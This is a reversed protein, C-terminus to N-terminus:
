DARLAIDRVPKGDLGKLEVVKTLAGSTLDLRYLTSGSIAFGRNSQGDSLIDFAMAEAKRGLTGQSNLVGDNPPAQKLYVGTADIDYLATEKTGKFSNSYAGAVVRPTKGAHADDGKFALKGDVITKGDDVNARLNTGDAFMVRLRDAVPNFDVVGPQGKPLAESLKAKPTAKGSAPDVTAVTGDDSLAYLLGDAPRIDIGVIAGSLGTVTTRGKAVGTKADFHVLQAAGVLATVTQAHVSASLALLAASAALISRIM